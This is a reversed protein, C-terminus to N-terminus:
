LREISELEERSRNIAISANLEFGIIVVMSFIYILLMVAMIAGISGYIRNYSNFNNIFFSFGYTTLLIMLTTFTAGPSFYNWKVNLSPAFFYIIAVSNFILFFLMLIQLVFLIAYSIGSQIHLLDTVKNVVLTGGIILVLTIILLITLVVTLAIAKLKKVYFAQNKFAPNNKEFATIMSGVGNSAFFLALIFGVSALGKRPISVLDEITSEITKFTYEPLLDSMFGLLLETLNEVPIHPILTFFFITLPFLALFINFSMSAARVNISDRQIESIFFSVVNFLSVGGFGPLSAGKTFQIIRDVFANETINSLKWKM